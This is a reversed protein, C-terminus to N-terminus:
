KKVHALCRNIHYPLGEYPEIFVNNIAYISNSFSNRDFMIDEKDAYPNLQLAKMYYELSKSYHDLKEECLGANIYLHASNEHTKLATETLYLAEEYRGRAFAIKSLGPLISDVQASNDAGTNETVMRYAERFNEEAEDYKHLRLYMFALNSLFRPVRNESKAIEKLIRIAKEHENLAFYESALHDKLFVNEPEEKICDKLWNLYLFNKKPTAVPFHHIYIDLLPTQINGLSRRVTEHVKREFRFGNNNKFLRIITSMSWMGAGIYNYRQLRYAKENASAIESRMKKIDQPLIEEDADLILIWDGSAYKLSENRADSFSTFDDFRVIKTAYKKSLEFSGDTSGTDVMIIEDFMDAFM